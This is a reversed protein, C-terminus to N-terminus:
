AGNGMHGHRLIDIQAPLRKATETADIELRHVEIGLLKQVLKLELNAGVLEHHVQRDRLHLKHFYGLRETVVSFDNEHVFRCRGNTFFFCLLKKCRYLTQFRASFANDIDGMAQRFNELNGIAIGHKAVATIDIAAIETADGTRFQDMHDDPPFQTLFIDLRIRRRFYWADLNGAEARGALYGVNGKGRM